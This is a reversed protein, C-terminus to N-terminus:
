LPYQKKTLILDYYMLRTHLKGEINEFRRYRKESDINNFIFHFGNRKYFGITCDTNYADVLIYRCGTKNKPEIFWAKIFDMLESGIHLGQYKQSIGLRGLLIAPYNINRKEENLYAAMAKKAGSSLLRNHISANCVTFAGVIANDKDHFFCYSKGMLEDEYPIYDNHFFSDLDENGCSFGSYAEQIGQRLTM